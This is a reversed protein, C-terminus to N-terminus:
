RVSISGDNSIRLKRQVVIFTFHKYAASVTTFEGSYVRENDLSLGDEIGDLDKWSVCPGSRWSDIHVKNHRYMNLNQICSGQILPQHIDYDDATACVPRNEQLPVNDLSTFYTTIKADAQNSQDYIVNPTAGTNVVAHYINLLRMGHGSNLRYQVNSSTGSPSSYLYSYVYPITIDLGSSKVKSQIAEVVPPSVEIALNLQLNSITVAGDLVAASTAIDTASPAVWGLRNVAAFHIRLILTQGFYLDKDLALVTHHIASLPISYSVNMQGALSGDRAIGQVFYCNETYGISPIQAAGVASIRTGNNANAVGPTTTPLTNSRFNNFGKDNARALTQTAGGKSSDNELMDVLPTVFQNISRTYQNCQTVDALYVGSRDYLSVRDIMTLGLAHLRSVAGTTASELAVMEFNLQSKSFNLCKQPIEFQIESTSSAALIVSSNGLPLVRSMRYSGHAIAKPAFQIASSVSM